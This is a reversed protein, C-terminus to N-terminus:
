FLPVILIVRMHLSYFHVRRDGPTTLGRLMKFCKLTEHITQEQMKLGSALLYLGRLLSVTDQYAWGFHFFLGTHVTLVLYVCSYSIQEWAVMRSWTGSASESVSKRKICVSPPPSPRPTGAAPFGSYLYVHVLLHNGFM